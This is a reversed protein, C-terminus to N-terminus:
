VAPVIQIKGGCYPCYMVDNGPHEFFASVPGELAEAIRELTQLQPYKGRLTQNLSIDSICLKEALAKQTLGKEKCIRKISARFNM